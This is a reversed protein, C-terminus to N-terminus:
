AVHKNFCFRSKVTFFCLLFVTCKNGWLFLLTCSHAPTSPSMQFSASLSWVRSCHLSVGAALALPSVHIVPAPTHRLSDKTWTNVHHLRKFLLEVCMISTLVFLVNSWMYTCDSVLAARARITEETKKVTVNTWKWPDTWAIMASVCRRGRGGKGEM